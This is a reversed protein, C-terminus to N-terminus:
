IFRASEVKEWRHWDNSFKMEMRWSSDLECASIRLGGELDSRVMCKYVSLMSAAMVAKRAREAALGM